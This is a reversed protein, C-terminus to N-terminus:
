QAGKKARHAPVMRMKGRADGELGFKRRNPQHEQDQQRREPGFYGDQEVVNNQQYVLAAIDREWKWYSSDDPIEHLSKKLIEPLNDSIERLQRAKRSIYYRWGEPLAQWDAMLEAAPNTEAQSDGTHSAPMDLHEIPVDGRLQSETVGYAAALKKLTSSRPDGHKGSLFRNITPQPVGSLRELDYANHGHRAMLSNLVDRTDMSQVYSATDAADFVNACQRRYPLTNSESAHVCVANLTREDLKGAEPHCVRRDAVLYACRLRDHGAKAAPCVLCGAVLSPLLDESQQFFLAAGTGGGWGQLHSM